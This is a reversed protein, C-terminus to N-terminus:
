PMHFDRALFPPIKIKKMQDNKPNSCVDGGETLIDM